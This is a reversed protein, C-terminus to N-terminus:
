RTVEIDISGSWQGSDTVRSESNKQTMSEMVGEIGFTVYTECVQDVLGHDIDRGHLVKMKKQYFKRIVGGNFKM